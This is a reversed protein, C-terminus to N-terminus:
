ENGIGQTLDYIPTIISLAVFGVVIGMFLLLLPELLTTLNRVASEVEETYYDSLYALNEQLNGTNEGIEIMSTFLPPFLKKDRALSRAFQEGKQVDHASEELSRRYVLNNFTSGTILTADVIKIGSKLLVSMIRSMNAINVSIMLFSVVPVFFGMRHIMYRFGKVILLLRFVVFLSVFGLVAWVWYASLFDVTWVLVRTTFPLELKLSAFIPLVKPFIFFVLFGTIAVTAVLIVAPYIMASRIKGNLAKSKRLEDALYLLNEALSGSAEGVRIVNVFFDGFAGEHRALSDGLSQGNNVSNIVDELLMGLSKSQTQAKVLRLGELVPLGAKVTISLHRAFNIKDQIKIRNFIWPLLRKSM